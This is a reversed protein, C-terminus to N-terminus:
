GALARPLEVQVLFSALAYGVAIAMGALLTSDIALRVIRALVLLYWVQLPLLLFQLALAVPDDKGLADCVFLVTVIPVAVLSTTAFVATLTQLTRYGRRRALLCAWFVLGTVVLDALARALAHEPDHMLVAEAIGFLLYPLAVAILLSLSAPLDRPSRRWLAIDWSISLVAQM